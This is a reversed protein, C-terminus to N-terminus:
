SSGGHPKGMFGHEWLEQLKGTAMSSGLVGIAVALSVGGQFAALLSAVISLVPVIVYRWRGLKTWWGMKTGIFKALFMLVMIVLAAFYWWLGGKAAEVAQKGLEIAEKADKPEAPAEKSSASAAPASKTAAAPASAPAEKTVAKPDPTPQAEALSAWMLGLGAILALTVALKRMEM